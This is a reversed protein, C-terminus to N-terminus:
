QIVSKKLDGLDLKSDDKMLYDINSSIITRRRVRVGQGDAERKGAKALKLIKNGEKIASYYYLLRHFRYFKGNATDVIGLFRRAHTYSRTDYPRIAVLPNMDKTRYIMCFCAPNGNYCTNMAGQLSSEWASPFSTNPYHPKLVDKRISYYGGWHGPMVESSVESWYKEDVDIKPVRKPLKKELAIREDDYRKEAAYDGKEFAIQASNKLLDIKSKIKIATESM